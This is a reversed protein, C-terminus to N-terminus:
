LRTITPVDAPWHYMRDGDKIPFDNISAIRLSQSGSTLHIALAAARINRDRALLSNALGVAAV